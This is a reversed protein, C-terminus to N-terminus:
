RQAGLFIQLMYSRGVTPDHMGQVDVVPGTIGGHIVFKDRRDVPESRGDVGGVPEIPELFTLTYRVEIVQQDVRRQYMREEVLALRGHPAAYTPAGFGDQGVWAHHEVTEQVSKTVKHAIAIGKRITSALSM